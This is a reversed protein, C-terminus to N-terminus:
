VYGIEDAVQQCVFIANEYRMNPSAGAPLSTGDWYATAASSSGTHNTLWAVGASKAGAV